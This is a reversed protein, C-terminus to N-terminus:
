SRVVNETLRVFPEGPDPALYATAVFRGVRSLSFAFPPTASLARELSRLVASDILEPSMFPVLVSIHAPVGDRASPDFRQRLSGVCAEAEPVRVILASAAM